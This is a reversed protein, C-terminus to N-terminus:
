AGGHDDGGVIEGQHVLEFARATEHQAVAPQMDIVSRPGALLRGCSRSAPKGPMLRFRLMGSTGASLMAPRASMVTMAMMVKRAERAAPEPTRTLWAERSQVWLTERSIVM